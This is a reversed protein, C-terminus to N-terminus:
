RIRKKSEKAIKYLEETALRTKAVVDSDDTPFCYYLVKNDGIGIVDGIEYWFYDSNLSYSSSAKQKYDLKGNCGTLHFGDKTHVLRGTGIQYLCKTNVLLSIDVPIDLSYTDNLIEERVCERQWKFWDPVHTFKSDGRTAKLYGYETLEYEKGCNTCSIKTDKGVMSGEKNCHPCKYLVRNLGEARFKEKILVKNEQQWRFGDFDFQERIMENIEEVSKGAVEKASLMYEMDATVKVKRRRLGNYLPDRSFAGYTRIMVVPVGLMKVCRGLSDPLTTATGDFSYGAEPFMLVCSKLEKVAYIMDRILNADSVFKKTPICGILRMLLNKGVFSDLTSVINFSRPFLVTAAIELDIFSSHNMLVLCPEDKGLKDMGIKRCEFKTFFLDVSAAVRMIIRFLWSVKMPKHKKQKPLALVDEYDMKKTIIKMNWRMFSTKVYEGM